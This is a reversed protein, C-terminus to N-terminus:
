QNKLSLDIRNFYYEINEKNVLYGFDDPIDSDEVKMVRHIILKGVNPYFHNLDKFNESNITISNIDMFNYLYGFVDVIDRIWMKYYKMLNKKVMLKFLQDSEPTTFIIIKATSNTKRMKKFTEKLDYNYAFNDGYIKSEYQKIDSVMYSMKENKTPIFMQKIFDTSYYDLRRDQFMEFSYLLSKISYILSDFSILTKIKYFPNCIKNTYYQISTFDSKRSKNMSYFDMGIIIYKLNCKTKFKVIEVFDYIEALNMDSVAFNFANRGTLDFSNIYTVRSSGLILCDINKRAYHILNLKQEREDINLRYKSYKYSFCWFPDKNFIILASGILLIFISIVSAYFFTKKSIKLM